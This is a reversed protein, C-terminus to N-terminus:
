AYAIHILFEHAPGYIESTNDKLNREMDYIIKQSILSRDLLTLKSGNQWSENQWRNTGNQRSEFKEIKRDWKNIISLSCSM